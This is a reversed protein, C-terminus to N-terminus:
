YGLDENVLLVIIRNKNLQYGHKVYTCCIRTESHCDICHGAYTCANNKNLRLCNAPAAIQEVRQVAEEMNRVIKNRGVVLIVHKPGYSIAAVRNSNGDVNYLEGEMTVANSSALYYDCQFARRYVEQQEERSLGEKYRDDYQVNMNRLEDILGCEFLTQSGGVSVTAGDEIMRHIEEVVAKRNTLIRADIQNKILAAKTKELQIMALADTFKDM